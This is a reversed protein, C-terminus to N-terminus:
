GLELAHSSRLARLHDNYTMQGYMIGDALWGFAFAEVFHITAVAPPLGTQM